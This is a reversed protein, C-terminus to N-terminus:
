NIDTDGTYSSKVVRALAKEHADRLMDGIARVTALMRPRAWRTPPVTAMYLAAAEPDRVSVDPAIYDDDTRHVYSADNMEFWRPDKLHDLM